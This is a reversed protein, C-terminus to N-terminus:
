EHFTVNNGSTKTFEVCVKSDDVKLIRVCFDTVQTINDQGTTSLSFKIKYKKENVTPEIKEKTRLHEVM